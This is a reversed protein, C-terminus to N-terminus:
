RTEIQSQRPSKLLVANSLFGSAPTMDLNTALHSTFSTQGKTWRIRYYRQGVAIAETATERLHEALLTSDEGFDSVPKATITEPINWDGFPIYTSTSAIDEIITEINDATVPGVFRVDVGTVADPQGVDFTDNWTAIWTRVSALM